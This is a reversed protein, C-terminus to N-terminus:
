GGTPTGLYREPDINFKERCAPVCFYYNRGQYKVPEAAYLKNVRMGCVPDIEENESQYQDVMGVALYSDLFRMIKDDFWAAVKEDNVLDVPIVMRDQGDFHFYVPVISLDYLLWINEASGDRTVALELRATAPFRATHEFSCVCTHRGSRDDCLLQANDFRSVMKELRPRIIDRVLHDALATYRDHRDQWEHMREAQHNYHQRAQAEQAALKETIRSELDSLDNM